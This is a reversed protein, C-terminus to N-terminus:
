DKLVYASMIVKTVASKEDAVTDESWKKGPLAATQEASRFSCPPLLHDTSSSNVADRMLLVTGDALQGLAPLKWRRSRRASEGSRRAM